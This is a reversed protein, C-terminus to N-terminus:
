VHMTRFMVGTMGWTVAVNKGRQEDAEQAEEEVTAPPLAIGASFLLLLFCTPGVELMQTELSLKPGLYYFVLVCVCATM